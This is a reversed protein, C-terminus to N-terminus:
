SDAKALIAELGTPYGVVVVPQGAVAGRGSADLPLVPIRRGKLDIKLLALDVRESHRLPELKFSDPVGPFFARCAVFRAQHGDKALDEGAHGKVRPRSHPPHTLIIGKPGGLFGTGFHDVTHIGGKGEVDGALSGDAEHEPQGQADLRYRLPRGQDDYFGYSGQ